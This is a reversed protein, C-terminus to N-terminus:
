AELDGSAVLFTARTHYLLQLKIYFYIFIPPNQLVSCFHGPQWRQTVTCHKKIKNSPVINNGNYTM